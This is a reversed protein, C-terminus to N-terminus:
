PRSRARRGRMPSSRGTASPARASSWAGMFGGSRRNAPASRNRGAFVRTGFLVGADGAAPPIWLGEFQGDRPIKGYAVCNLAVGGALCLNRIGFEQGLSRTLRLMIENLASQISAAVDMHFQTLPEDPRRPPQGFLADFRRNTM